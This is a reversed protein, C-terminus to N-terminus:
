RWVWWRPLGMFALVGDAPKGDENVSPREVWQGDVKIRGTTGNPCDPMHDFAHAEAAMQVAVRADAAYRSPRPGFDLQWHNCGACVAVMQNIPPMKM